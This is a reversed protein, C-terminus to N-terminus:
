KLESVLSAVMDASFGLGLARARSALRTSVTANSSSSSKGAGTREPVAVRRISGSAREPRMAWYRNPSASVSDPDGCASTCNPELIRKLSSCKALRSILWVSGAIATFGTLPLLRTAPNWSRKGWVWSKTQRKVKVLSPPVLQVKPPDVGSWVLPFKQLSEAIVASAFPM